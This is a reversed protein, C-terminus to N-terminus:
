REMTAFGGREVSDAFRLVADAFAVPRDLNSLHSAGAITEVQAQPCARVFDKVGLRFQDYQGNLLLVPCDIGWLMSPRCRTIVENWADATPAFWYGGAIVPEIREAPYLRRLLRDNVTTMRRPGLRDTLRAVGRYVSAGPGTPTTSCGALVLGAPESRHEAAYAMTAFGGLSHGVVVPRSGSPVAEVAEHIVEACRDLTFREDARSGHGPLDVLTVGVRDAWLPLQPAWQTSSLRSGHM